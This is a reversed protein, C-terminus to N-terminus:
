TACTMCLDHVVHMRRHAYEGSATVKEAFAIYAALGSDSNLDIYDKFPLTKHFQLLDSEDQTGWEPDIVFMKVADRGSATDASAGVTGAFDAFSKIRQNIYAPTPEPVLLIIERNKLM